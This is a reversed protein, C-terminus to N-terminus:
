FEPYEDPYGSKTCICTSITEGCECPDDPDPGFAKDWCAQSCIGSLLQEREWPEANPFQEQILRRDREGLVPTYQEKCVPCIKSSM